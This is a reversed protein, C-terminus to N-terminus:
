LPLYTTPYEGEIRLIERSMALVLANPCVHVMAEALSAVAEALHECNDLVLLLKEGDIARAVSEASIENGGMTLGLVTAVASPVLAPDSL